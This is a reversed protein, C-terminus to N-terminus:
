LDGFFHEFADATGPVEAVQVDLAEALPVLEDRDPHDADPAATDAPSATLCAATM